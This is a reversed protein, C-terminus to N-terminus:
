MGTFVLKPAHVTKNGPSLKRLITSCCPVWASYLFHNCEALDKLMNNLMESWCHFPVRLCGHTGPFATKVAMCVSVNLPDTGQM